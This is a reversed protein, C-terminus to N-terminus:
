KLFDAGVGGELNMQNGVRTTSDKKSSQFNFSVVTAAHYKRDETLYVTTGAGLEHGWMGLGTNDSAGDEYRGSPVYIQYYAIADYRKKHWGLQLPAVVSDTIGAGPNQDIETGQIRNNAGAVLVTFGYYAGLFQKKTVVTVGFGIFSATINADLPVRDGNADRIDDTSYFYLLPAIAYAGPPPASGGKVGFSGKVHQTNLQAQAPAAIAAVLASAAIAMAFRNRSSM